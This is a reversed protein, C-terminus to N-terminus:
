WRVPRYRLPCEGGVGERHRYFYTYRRRGTRRRRKRVEEGCAPCEAVDPSNPGATVARGNLRAERMGGGVQDAELEVPGSPAAWVAHLGLGRCDM